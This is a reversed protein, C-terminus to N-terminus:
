GIRDDQKKNKRELERSSDRRYNKGGIEDCSLKKNCTEHLYPKTNSARAVRSSYIYPIVM